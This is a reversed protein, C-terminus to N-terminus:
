AELRIQGNCEQPKGNELEESYNDFNEGSARYIIRNNCWRQLRRTERPASSKNYIMVYPMYGLEQVRKIRYLDQQHTTDFNTLIYVGTKRSDINTENKYIELGLFVQKEDKMFDFAFHAMSTKVKSLAIANEKTICRADLGQTFDVNVKSSQLQEILEMHKKCALLNPDLLKIQKQGSWFQSLNAVKHSCLGEKKGVICFGCNRPCGRTLFGYAVKFNPYLSYDPMMGEIEPPLKTKLSYGTGGKIVIRANIPNPIDSSYEETFVKAKYVVDYYTFNGTWWEATAGMQKYFASIKMLALNPFNKGDVDILGIKM